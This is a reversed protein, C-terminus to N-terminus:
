RHLHTKLRLYKWRMNEAIKYFSYIPGNTILDFTGLFEVLDGGYGKKFRHFGFWADKENPQPGLSGWMDFMKCGQQQGFKIMEWMMLNSAMVERHLDRSAGYPYYLTDNFVFMIWSVIVTEEYVAEFIRLMGSDALSEWMKHFYDPSHAYFGQRKTTEALIQLYQEMGEATSNEFIQVGKKFALNVNYRTKTNLQAFLEDEAPTLDLQFTYKTFLPRGPVAGNKQLFDAIQPLASPTDVKHGINPEMKVFVAHHKKGLQQLASLQEEDPMEGRPFYGATMNKLGPLPHFFVQLARQLKGDQFFGVREVEIGTKRRFEGWEWTQLPHHVVSNYLKKEEERLPRLLM